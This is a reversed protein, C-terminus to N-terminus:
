ARRGRTEPPRAAEAIEILEAYHAEVPALDVGHSFSTFAFFPLLTSWHKLWSPLYHPRELVGLARLEALVAVDDLAVRGCAIMEVEDRFGGRIVATFFAFVELLGGLYCADKTFPAGGTVLGGRCIRQADFYADKPEAGRELLFRYLELFDAGEEAMHVLKVRVALRELRSTALSRTYLESFIALGEQARTTRPGGSRLFPASKQRAGNQATLAHTEIEHHWLGEAEWPAFTADPRVRVRSMGAVAKATASPDVVVEIPMHPRRKEIRERLREALGEASLPEMEADHAEDWGHVRLRELLHDALDKNTHPGGYFPTSAGGYLAKSREYFAKTGIAASLLHADVMSRVCERLWKGLADGGDIGQEVAELERAREELGARDVEYSPAPLETEGSAFFREEVDRPWAIEELLKVRSKKDDLARAVTDIRTLHDHTM